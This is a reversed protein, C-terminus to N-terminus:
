FHEKAGGYGHARVNRFGGFRIGFGNLESDREEIGLDFEHSQTSL